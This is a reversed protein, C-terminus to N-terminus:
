TTSPPPRPQGFKPPRHRLVYGGVMVGVGLSFADQSHPLALPPYVGPLGYLFMIAGVVYCVIGLRMRWKPLPPETDALKAKHIVEPSKYPNEDM